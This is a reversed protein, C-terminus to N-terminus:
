KFFLKIMKLLILLGDKFESVNKKGAIRKREFSPISSINFKQKKAKIPLEVCLGFDKSNLKLEKVKKTNGVVFTYLIDTIQLKFFINGILTFIKNGLFTLPTDDESGANKEYRSAFLIDLNENSIKRLMNDIENPNFSGDANFISFQSTEVSNIGKILADGYGKNDQLIIKVKSFNKVSEITEIDSPHVVIIIKYNYSELEELVKPLSLKENKAPIVLTLDNM